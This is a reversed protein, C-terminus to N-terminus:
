AARKTPRGRKRPAPDLADEPAEGARLRADLMERRVGVIAAWEAVSRTQGLYTVFRCRSRSSTRINKAARRGNCVNCTAVLNELRNDHRVGNIHDIHLNSWDVQRRCDPCTFPGAGYADYYVVRHEYARSTAVRMMAVLPHDPRYIKVYGNPCLVREPRNGTVRRGNRHEHCYASHTSSLPHPCGDVSCTNRSLAEHGLTNVGM